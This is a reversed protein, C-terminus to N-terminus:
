EQCCSFESSVPCKLNSNPRKVLFLSNIVEPDNCNSLSRLCKALGLCFYYVKKNPWRLWAVQSALLFFLAYCFFHLKVLPHQLKLLPNCREVLEQRPLVM